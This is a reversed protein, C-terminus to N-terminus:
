FGESLPETQRKLEPWSGLTSADLGVYPERSLPSGAEGEGEAKGGAQARENDKM